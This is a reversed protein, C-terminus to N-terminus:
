RSSLPGLMTARLRKLACTMTMCQVSGMGRGCPTACQADPNPTEPWGPRAAQSRSGSNQCLDSRAQEWQLIM